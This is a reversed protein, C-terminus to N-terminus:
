GHYQYREAIELENGIHIEEEIDWRNARMFGGPRIEGTRLQTLTPSDDRGNMTTAQVKEMNKPSEGRNIAISNNNPNISDYTQYRYDPSAVSCTTATSRAGLGGMNHGLIVTGDMPDDTSQDMYHIISRQGPPPSGMFPSPSRYRGKRCVNAPSEKYYKNKSIQPLKDMDGQLGGLNKSSLRQLGGNMDPLLKNLNRETLNMGRSSSTGRNKPANKSAERSTGSANPTKSSKRRDKKQSKGDRSKSKASSSEKMCTPLDWPFVHLEDLEGSSGITKKKKNHGSSPSQSRGRDRERAEADAKRAAIEARISPSAVKTGNNNWENKFPFYKNFFKHSGIRIMGSCELWDTKIEVTSVANRGIAAVIESASSNQGSLTQTVADSAKSGIKSVAQGSTSNEGGSVAKSMLSHEKSVATSQQHALKMRKGGPSTHSRESDAPSTPHPSPPPIMLPDFTGNAETDELCEYNGGQQSIPRESTQGSMVNNDVGGVSASVINLNLMSNNTEKDGKFPQHWDNSGIVKEKTQEVLKQQYEKNGCTREIEERAGALVSAGGKGEITPSVLSVYNRAWNIDVEVLRAATRIQSDRRRLLDDLSFRQDHDKELMGRVVPLLQWFNRPIAEPRFDPVNNHDEDGPTCLKLLYENKQIQNKIRKGFYFPRRLCMMTYVCYGLGWVDTKPTIERGLIAEPALYCLDEQTTLCGYEKFLRSGWDGLRLIFGEGARGGGDFTDGSGITGIKAGGVRTPRADKGAKSASYGPDVALFINQPKVNRHLIKNAHLFQLAHALQATWTFIHEKTWIKVKYDRVMKRVGLIHNWLDRHGEYGSIAMLEGPVRIIGYFPLFHKHEGVISKLRNLEEIQEQIKALRSSGRLRNHYESTTAGKSSSTADKFLKHLMKKTVSERKIIRTEGDKYNMYLEVRRPHDWYSWPVNCPWYKKFFRNMKRKNREIAYSNDGTEYYSTSLKEHIEKEEDEVTTGLQDPDAPETGPIIPSEHPSTKDSASQGGKCNNKKGIEDILDFSSKGKGMGFSSKRKARGGRDGHDGYNTKSPCREPDNTSSNREKQTPSDGIDLVASTSDYRGISKVSEYKGISQQAMSQQTDYKRTKNNTPSITMLQECQRAHFSPSYCHGMTINHNKLRINPNMLTSHANHYHLNSRTPTVNGTLSPASSYGQASSYANHGGGGAMSQVRQLSQGGGPSHSLGGGNHSLGGGGPHSRANGDARVNDDTTNNSQSLENGNMPSNNIMHMTVDSVGGQDRMMQERM